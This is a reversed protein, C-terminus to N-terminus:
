KKKKDKPVWRGSEYWASWGTAKGDKESMVYQQKFKRSYRIVTPNGEPDKEPADMLYDYKPDIEKR